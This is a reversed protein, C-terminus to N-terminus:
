EAGAPATDPGFTDLVGIYEGNPEFAHMSASWTDGDVEVRMVQNVLGHKFGPLDHHGGVTMHPWDKVLPEGHDLWSGGGTICYYVGNKYGREYEHTHGSFVADVGYKEALPVVKEQLQEDGAIWLECYPPVHIFLFRHDAAQTEDSALEGELWRRIDVSASNYDICIFRANSYTFAFSGWGPDFRERDKSPMDAFKRMVDRRGADHNGWAVFWPVTRGLEKAVRGIYMTKTQEYSDGDEALDGSSVAIDIGSNALWRLMSKTPELPDAEYTGHNPGQSDSWVGFSFPRPAGPATQFEGTQDTAEGNVHVAYTYVSDPELGTLVAKYIATDFGSDITEAEFTFAEGDANAASAAAPHVGDMEWMITIGHPKVNQLYPATLFEAAQASLAGLGLAIVTWIRLM